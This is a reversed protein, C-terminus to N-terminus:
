RTEPVSMVAAINTHADAARRKRIARRSNWRASCVVCYFGILYGPPFRSKDALRSPKESPEGWFGFANQANLKNTKIVFIQVDSCRRAFFNWDPDASHTTGHVIWECFFVIIEYWISIWIFIFLLIKKDRIQILLDTMQKLSNPM